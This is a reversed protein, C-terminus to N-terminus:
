AFPDFFTNSRIMEPSVGSPDCRSGVYQTIPLTAFMRVVNVLWWKLATRFASGRVALLDMKLRVHFLAPLVSANAM